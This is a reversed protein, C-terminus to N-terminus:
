ETPEPYLLKDAAVPVSGGSSAEFGNRFVFDSPAAVPDADIATNDGPAVELMAGTTAITATHRLTSGIAGAITGTVFFRLAAGNPLDLALGAIAGSGSAQPCSALQLNSCSWLVQTLGAPVPVNLLAGATGYPGANSALVEYVVTQGPSV